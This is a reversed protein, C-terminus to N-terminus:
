VHPAIRTLYSLVAVLGVTLVAWTLWLYLLPRNDEEYAKRGADLCEKAYYKLNRTKIYKKNKETEPEIKNPSKGKFKMDLEIKFQPFKGIKKVPM